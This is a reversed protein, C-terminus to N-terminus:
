VAKARPPPVPVRERRMSWTIGDNPWTHKRNTLEFATGPAPALYAGLDKATINTLADHRPQSQKAQRVVKCVACPENGSFTREAGIWFGSQQGYRVLMGAWGACQLLAVHGGTACFMAVLLMMAQYRHRVPPSFTGM